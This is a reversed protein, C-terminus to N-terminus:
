HLPGRSVATVILYWGLRKGIAAYISSPIMMPVRGLRSSGPIDERTFKRVSVSRVDLGAARVIDSIERQSYVNVIPKADATTVEITSRRDALRERRFGGSLFYKLVLWGYVISRRNYVLIRLEGTPSLVRRAESLAKPLDPVHHLVGNSYVVDFSSDPYPLAEADGQVVDPTFGFFGLHKKTREVNEATIDIGRYDAGAQMFKLADYGPGFGIELVRKGKMADFPVVEALWPQEIADRYARAKNFFALTGPTEDSVSASGTPSAGWTKQAETLPAM